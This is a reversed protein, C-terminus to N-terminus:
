KSTTDLQKVLELLVNDPLSSVDVKSQQSSEGDAGLGMHDISVHEGYLAPLIKSLVWQRTNVRLKSRQVHESDLMPGIEGTKKNEREVWDNTGDDAIDLMEDQMEMAGIIRARAYRPAFGERNDIVWTRVTSCSPMDDDQLCISRLTRGAALQELIHEAVEETYTPYTKKKVVVQKLEQM